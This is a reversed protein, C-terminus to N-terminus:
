RMVPFDDALKWNFSSKSGTRRELVLNWATILLAARVVDNVRGQTIQKLESLRKLMHVVPKGHPVSGGIQLMSAFDHAKGKDSKSALYIVATALGSPIKAVKYIAQGQAIFEPLTPYKTKVMVLLEKPEFTDRFKVRDSEILRVWRIAAALIGTSKYGDIKLVDDGSRPKGRDMVDFLHDEVGFVIHTKFPTEAKVCSRLRNQGDRLLSKDSFKLTDGTKGWRGEAMDAAYQKIKQPKKSRNNDSDHYTDLVWQALEPTITFVRSNEPPNKIYHAIV